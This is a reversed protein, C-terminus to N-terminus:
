LINAIAEGKYITSVLHPALIPYLDSVTVLLNIYYIAVLTLRKYIM